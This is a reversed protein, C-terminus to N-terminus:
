VPALVGDGEEDDDGEVAFEADIAQELEAPEEKPVIAAASAGLRRLRDRIIDAPNELIPGSDQVSIDIAENFGSRDMILKAAALRVSDNTSNLMLEGVTDIAKSSMAWLKQQNAKLLNKTEEEDLYEGGHTECRTSGKVSWRDCARRKDPDKAHFVYDCRVKLFKGSLADHPNTVSRGLADDMLSDASKRLVIKEVKPLGIVGRKDTKLDPAELDNDDRAEPLHTITITSADLQAEDMQTRTDSYGSITFEDKAFLEVALSSRRVMDNQPEFGAAGAAAFLEVDSHV